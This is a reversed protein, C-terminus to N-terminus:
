DLNQMATVNSALRLWASSLLAYLVVVFWTRADNALISTTMVIALVGSPLVLNLRGLEFVIANKRRDSIMGLTYLQVWLLLCPITVVALGQSAYLQGIWLIGAVAVLFQGILYYRLTAALPPDYKRFTRIDSRHKPYRAEVDQPRWGTRRFWIGLKDRWRRTRVADFWLYAYVQANAWFPNWSSLPKRVGFVVPDNDLEEQFSGFLRDWLVLIGGYNRDIYKENQAHHVRHNSPTVFIRDLVGLKGIHQTHVWFQYILNLSNVTILVEPPFGVLFLPLYFIWNFLFGTSTQRLATSLNYDESQHHVAHSAWLISIEHGCRHSWYYCFDWALMAVLWLLLGTPSMDFWALPMDILAFEEFAYAWIVTPVIKTFYGFTTSLTGASLSNIADNARYHGTGRIRDVFLEILLALLFFPVAIAILDM